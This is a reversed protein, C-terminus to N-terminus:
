NENEIRRRKGMISIPEIFRYFYGVPDDIEDMLQKYDGYKGTKLLCAMMAIAKAGSDLVGPMPGFCGRCPINTKICTEGCGSRTVPGLCMIGQALFCIDSEAEKEHIRSIQRIELRLPKTNNRLCIECLATRPALKSGKPPLDATLVSKVANHILDPPPPCGPLYYDVDIAQELAYVHDFFKPLTLEVGDIFTSEMPIVKEPNLVSPSTHYVFSFIDEKTTFNALGQSGGFCACSGFALIYQSKQRLLTAVKKHESNRIAGHIISLIIENDNFSKLHHYKYDLAIPWFVIDMEDTLDILSENLDVIAEDCGACSSLWAIAVKTKEKM